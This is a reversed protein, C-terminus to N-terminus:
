ISIWKKQLQFNSSNSGSNGDKEWISWSISRVSAVLDICPLSVPSRVGLIGAHDDTGCFKCGVRAWQHHKSIHSKQKILKLILWSLKSWSFHNQSMTQFQTGFTGWQESLLAQFTNVALQFSIFFQPHLNSRKATSTHHRSIHDM